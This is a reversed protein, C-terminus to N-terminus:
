PPEHLGCTRNHYQHTLGLTLGNVVPNVWESAPGTALPRIVRIPNSFMGECIVARHLTM